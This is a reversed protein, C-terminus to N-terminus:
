AHQPQHLLQPVDGDVAAKALQQGLWPAFKFMNDGWV